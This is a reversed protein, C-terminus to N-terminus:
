SMVSFVKKKRVGIPSQQGQEALMKLKELQEDPKSVDEMRALAPPLRIDEPCLLMVLGLKIAIKEKKEPTVDERSNCRPNAVPAYSASRPLKEPFRTKADNRESRLNTSLKM